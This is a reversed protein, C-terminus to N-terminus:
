IEIYNEEGFWEQIQLKAESSLASVCVVALNYKARSCVVYFLNTTKKLRNIHDTDGSFYENFNYSQRWADDDIVVLVNDFEDGKTNHKTSFPTNNQQVQYLRLFQAYEIEILEDFFDKKEADEYDYNKMRDSECLLGRNIAYDIVESIKKTQRIELLETMLDNLRKKDNFSSVDFHVKKLFQQIR